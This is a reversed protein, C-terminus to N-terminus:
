LVVARSMAPWPRCGAATERGRRGRDHEIRELRAHGLRADPRLVRKRVAALLREGAAMDTGGIFIATHHLDKPGRTFIAGHVLDRVADETVGGYSM